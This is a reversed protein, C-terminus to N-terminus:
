PQFGCLTVVCSVCVSSMVCMTHIYIHIGFTISINDGHVNVSFNCVGRSVQEADAELGGLSVSVLALDTVFVM